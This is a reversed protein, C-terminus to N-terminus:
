EVRRPAPSQLGNTQSAFHDPLSARVRKKKEEKKVGGRLGARVPHAGTARGPCYGGEALSAASANCLGAPTTFCSETHKRRLQVRLQAPPPSAPPARLGGKNHHAQCRGASGNARSAAGLRAAGLRAAGDRKSNLGSTATRRVGFKYLDAAPNIERAEKNAPDCSPQLINILEAM